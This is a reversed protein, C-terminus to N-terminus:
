YDSPWDVTVTKNALDVKIVTQQHWPILREEADLSDKTASVQMVDHAGTEFMETIDGLTEGQENVVHLGVLDSWYYEDEDPKPLSDKAAWITVGNMTEAINRDPIEKFQAVLGSGQHRWSTVTLPKLGVATKMWWPSMAFIDSRNDTNSFVWLWGKIGYPKKLQGINIMQQIDPTM